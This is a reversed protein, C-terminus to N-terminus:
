SHAPAENFLEFLVAQAAIPDLGEWREGLSNAWKYVNIIYTNPQFHMVPLVVHFIHAMGRNTNLEGMRVDGERSHNVKRWEIEDLRM